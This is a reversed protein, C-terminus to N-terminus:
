TTHDWDNLGCVGTIRYFIYPIKLFYFCFPVPIYWQILWWELSKSIKKSLEIDVNKQRGKSKIKIYLKEFIDQKVTMDIWRNMDRFFSLFVIGAVKMYSLLM